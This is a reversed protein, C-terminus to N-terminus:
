IAGTGLPCIQRSHLGQNAILTVRHQSQLLPYEYLQFLSGPISLFVSCISFCERRSKKFFAPLTATAAGAAPTMKFALWTSAPVLTALPNLHSASLHRGNGGPQTFPRKQSNFISRCNSEQLVSLGIVPTGTM